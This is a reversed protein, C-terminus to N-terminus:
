DPHSVIMTTTNGHSGGIRGDHVDGMDCVSLALTAPTVRADPLKDLDRIRVRPVRLAFDLRQGRDIARPIELLPNNLVIARVPARTKGILAGPESDIAL